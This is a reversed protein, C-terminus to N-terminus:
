LNPRVWFVEPNTQGIRQNLSNTVKITTWLWGPLLDGSQFQYSVIGSDMDVIDMNHIIPSATPLTLNSPSNPYLNLTVTTGSLPVTSNSGSDILTRQFVTLTDGAVFQSPIIAM